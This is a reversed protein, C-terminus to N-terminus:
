YKTKRKLAIILQYIFLSSLVKHSLWWVYSIKEIEVYKVNFPNIFRAFDNLSVVEVSSSYFVTSIFIIWLLPLIWCNAFNSSIKGFFLIILNPLYKFNYTYGKNFNFYLEQIYTNMEQHYMDSENIYDKRDNFFHKFFRFYEKSHSKKVNMSIYQFQEKELVRFNTFDKIYEFSSEQFLGKKIKINNFAIEKFTTNWIKIDKFAIDRLLCLKITSDNIYLSTDKQNEIDLKNIRKSDRFIILNIDSFSIGLRGKVLINEFILSGTNIFDFDFDYFTCDIFQAMSGPKQIFEKKEGKKWFLFDKELIEDNGHHSLPRNYITTTPFIIGTFLFMKRDDVPKRLEIWFDINDENKNIIHPPEIWNDKVCHLICKNDISEDYIVRNCDKYTCKSM